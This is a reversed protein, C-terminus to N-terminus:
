RMYRSIYGPEEEKSTSRLRKVAALSQTALLRKRHTSISSPEGQRSSHDVEELDHAHKLAAIHAEHVSHASNRSYNQAVSVDDGRGTRRCDAIECLVKKRVLFAERRKRKRPEDSEQWSPISTDFMSRSIMGPDIDWLASLETPSMDNRHQVERIQLVRSFHVDKSKPISLRHHHLPAVFLVHSGESFGEQSTTSSCLEDLTEPSSINKIITVVDTKRSCRNGDDFSMDVPLDILRITEACSTHAM